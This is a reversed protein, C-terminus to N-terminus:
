RKIAFLKDKHVAYVFGNNVASTSVHSYTDILGGPLTVYEYLKKKWLVEGSDVDLAFLSETDGVFLHNGALYPSNYVGKSIPYEWVKNKSQKNYAYIMDYSAVFIYKSSVFTVSRDEEQVNCQYQVAGTNIDLGKIVSEEKIFIYEEDGHLFLGPRNRTPSVWATQGTAADFATVNFYSCKDGVIIKNSRWLMLSQPTCLVKNEWLLQGNATDILMLRGQHSLVGLMGNKYVPPLLFSENPIGMERYGTYAKYKWIERGTNIDIAYVMGWAMAWYVIGDVILPKRYSYAADVNAVQLGQFQWITKGSKADLARLVTGQEVIVMADNAIPQATIPVGNDIIWSVEGSKEKPANEEDNCANFILVTLSIVAIFLAKCRKM